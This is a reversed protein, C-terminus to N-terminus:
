AKLLVTNDVNALVFDSDRLKVFVDDLLEVLQIYFSLKRMYNLRIFEVWIGDFFLDFIDETLEFLLLVHDLM